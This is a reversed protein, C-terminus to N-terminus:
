PSRDFRRRQSAQLEREHHDCLTRDQDGPTTASHAHLATVELCRCHRYTWTCQHADREITADPASLM